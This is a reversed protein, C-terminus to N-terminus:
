AIGLLLKRVGVIKKIFTRQIIEMKAIKGANSPCWLQSLYDLSAKTTTDHDIHYTFSGSSNMYVALYKVQEKQKIQKGNDDLYM